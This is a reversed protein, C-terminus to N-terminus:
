GAPQVLTLIGSRARPPLEQLFDTHSRPAQLTKSSYPRGWAERVFPDMEEPCRVQRGSLVGALRVLEDLDHRSRHGFSEGENAVPNAAVCLSHHSDKIHSSEYSLMLGM